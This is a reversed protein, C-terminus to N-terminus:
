KGAMKKLQKTGLKSIYPPQDMVTTGTSYSIDLVNLASFESGAKVRIDFDMATKGSITFVAANNYNSNNTASYTKWVSEDARKIEANRPATTNSRTGWFKITYTRSAQLGSIRWRGNVASTHILAHDTTASAPYDNVIGVTNGNGMGTSATNYSGDIRNVVEINIGSPANATTVANSIRLGPRADTLNNWVNGNIAPSGTITGGYNATGGIDILVRQQQNGTPASVNVIAVTNDKGVAGANDTVALEFEYVGQALNSVVPAAITSDSFIHGAPGSIKKWRYSVITGDADSSLTGNLPLNAPLVLTADNGARAVPPQNAPVVSRKYQLLWEYINIGAPKYGPLTALSWCEHATVANSSVVPFETLKALPNPAPTYANIYNKWNRSNSVPVTGDHTNHFAWVPLNAAAIRNALTQTPTLTGCFPIMAAIKNSNFISTGSYEWVAGGGASIGMLYIREPDVRYNNVVYTLMGAVNNGSPWSLFQPSIIIFSFSTGNVSFAPPFGGESIIKPVGWELVKPLQAANGQGTQGAGHVWIILPYKKATTNYDAPLYRYFGKSNANSITQSFFVPVQTQAAVLQFGCCFLFLLTYNKQM